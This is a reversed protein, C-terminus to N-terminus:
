HTSGATILFAEVDTGSLSLSLDLHRKSGTQTDVFHTSTEDTGEVEQGALQPRWAAYSCCCYGRIALVNRPTIHNSLM